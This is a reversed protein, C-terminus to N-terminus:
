RSSSPTPPSSRTPGRSSRCGSTSRRLSQARGAGELGAAMIGPGGRDRGDVRPRRHQAAFQPDPTSRTTPCRAPRVSSRSRPTTRTPPSSRSAERLETLAANAIKLDLRDADDAALRVATVLIEAAPGPQDTVGAADLLARRPGASSSRRDKTRPDGAPANPCPPRRPTPPTPGALLRRCAATCPPANSSAGGSRSSSPGSAAEDMRQGHSAGAARSINEDMLTGGLDNVGPRCCSAPGPRRGDEGLSAQINAIWGHYAIRAVAHMLLAERFTPGRRAKRQLYIPAAMHVFPLRVFETFGGTEKQLARTRVLHRAWHM